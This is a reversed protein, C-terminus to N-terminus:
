AEPDCSDDTRVLQPRNGRATHKEYCERCEYLPYVMKRGSRWLVQSHKYMREILCKKRCDERFCKATSTAKKKM